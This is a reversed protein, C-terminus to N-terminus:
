RATNSASRARVAPTPSVAAMFSHHGAVLPLLEHGLAEEVASYDQNKCHAPKGGAVACNGGGGGVEWAV